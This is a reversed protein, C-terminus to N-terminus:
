KYGKQVLLSDYIVELPIVEPEEISVFSIDINRTNSGDTVSITVQVNAAELYQDKIYFVEGSKSDIVFDESGQISYSLSDGKDNDTATFQAVPISVPSELFIFDPFGIVNLHKEFIPYHNNTFNISFLAVSKAGYGLIEDKIIVSISEPYNVENETWIRQCYLTGNYPNLTVFRRLFSPSVKEISYSHNFKKTDCGSGKLDSKVMGCTEFFADQEGESIEFVYSFEEFELHCDDTPQPTSSTSSETTTSLTTTSDPNITTTATSMTSTTHTTITSAPSSDSTASSSTSTIISSTTTSTPTSTSGHSTSGETTTSDNPVDLNVILYFLSSLSPKIGKEVAQKYLIKLSICFLFMHQNVKIKLVDIADQGPVKLLTVKIFKDNVGITYRGNFNDELSYEIDETLDDTDTANFENDTIVEGVSPTLPGITASDQNWQPPNVNYDYSLTVKSM